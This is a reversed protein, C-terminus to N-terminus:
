SIKTDHPRHPFLMTLLRRLETKVRIYFNRGLSGEAQLTRPNTWVRAESSRIQKVKGYRMLDFCMRGDEGRVNRNVYGIKLGLEKRYGMSMGLSNLYPRKFHRIEAIFDKLIEYFFLKWRPFEGGGIFSYRGYVCVVGPESFGKMMHDVWSDPYICDADALLIYEGLANVQGMQRAPGCGQIDQFFSRVNLKDLVDQTRDTSRNNIVIIEVLYSTKMYSLSGICNLLNVEENWAPIVISVLPSKGSLVELRRNISDFVSSQIDEFKKCNFNADKVWNPNNFFFM